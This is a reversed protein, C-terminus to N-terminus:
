IVRRFHVYKKILKEKKLEKIEDIHTRIMKAAKDELEAYKADKNKILKRLEKTADKTERANEAYKEEQEKVKDKLLQIEKELEAITQWHINRM